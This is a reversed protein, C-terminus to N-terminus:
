WKKLFSKWRGKIEDEALDEIDIQKQIDLYLAFLPRHTSLEHKSLPNALLPLPKTTAKSSHHFHHKHSRSRDIPSHSRTRLHRHPHDQSKSVATRTPSRSRKRYESMTHGILYVEIDAHVLDADSIISHTHESRACQQSVFSTFM